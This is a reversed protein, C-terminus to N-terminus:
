LQAPGRKQHRLPSPFHPPLLRRPLRPRAEPKPYRQPQHVPHSPRLYRRDCLQPWDRRSRSVRLLLREAASFLHACKQPRHRHLRRLLKKRRYRGRSLSWLGCKKTSGRWPSLLFTAPPSRKATACELSKPKKRSKMTACNPSVRERILQEEELSEFANVPLYNFQLRRELEQITHFTGEPHLQYQQM